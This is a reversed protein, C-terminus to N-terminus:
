RVTDRYVSERSYDVNKGRPKRMARLAALHQRWEDFPQDNPDTAAEDTAAPDPSTPATMVAADPRHENGSELNVLLTM